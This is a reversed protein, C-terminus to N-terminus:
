RCSEIKEKIQQVIQPYIVYHEKTLNQQNICSSCLHLLTIKHYAVILEEPHEECKDNYSLLPPEQEISRESLKDDDAFGVMSADNLESNANSDMNLRVSASVNSDVFKKSKEPYQLQEIVEWSPRGDGVFPKLM